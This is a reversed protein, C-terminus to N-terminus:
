NRSDPEQEPALDLIEIDLNRLKIYIKDLDDPSVGSFM